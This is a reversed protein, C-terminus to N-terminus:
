GENKLVKLFSDTDVFGKTKGQDMAMALGIDEWEELNLIKTKIGIKKALEILLNLDSESEGSFIVNVM